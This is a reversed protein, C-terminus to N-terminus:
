QKPSFDTCPLFLSSPIQPLPCPPLWSLSSSGKVEGWPPLLESRGPSSYPHCIVDIIRFYKCDLTLTTRNSIKCCLKHLIKTWVLSGSLELQMPYLLFTGNSGFLSFFYFMVCQSHLRHKLAFLFIFSTCLRRLCTGATVYCFILLFILNKKKQLM